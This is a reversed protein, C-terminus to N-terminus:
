QSQGFSGSFQCGKPVHLIQFSGWAICVDSLKRCFTTSRPIRRDNRGEMRKLTSDQNSLSSSKHMSVPIIEGQQAPKGPKQELNGPSFATPVPSVSCSVQLYCRSRGSIPSDCPVELSDQATESQEM